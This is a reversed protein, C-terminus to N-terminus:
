EHNEVFKLCDCNENECYKLNNHEMATHGCDCSSYAFTM